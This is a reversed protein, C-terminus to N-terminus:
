IKNQVHNIINRLNYLKTNEQLSLGMKRVDDSDESPFFIDEFLYM